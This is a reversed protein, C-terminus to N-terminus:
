AKDAAEGGPPDRVIQEFKQMEKELRVFAFYQAATPDSESGDRVEITKADDTFFGLREHKVKMSRDHM